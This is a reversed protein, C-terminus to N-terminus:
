EGIQLYRTLIAGMFPVLVLIFPLAYVQSIFGSVTALLTSLLTLSALLVSKEYFSRLDKKPRTEGEVESEKGGVEERYEVGRAAELMNRLGRAYIEEQAEESLQYRRPGVKKEPPLSEVYGEIEAIADEPAERTGSENM